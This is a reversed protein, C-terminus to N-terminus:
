ETVTVTAKMYPHPMCHISYTGAKKFTFSYSEGKGILPGNPADASGDDSVVNHRVSDQNTWTVTDGVKVTIAMPTFMYNEISVAKTAVASSTSTDAKAATNSSNSTTKAPSPTSYGSANDTNSKKGSSIAIVGAAAVVILLAVGILIGRNQKM